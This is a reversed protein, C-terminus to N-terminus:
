IGLDDAWSTDHFGYVDGPVTSNGAAGYENLHSQRTPKPAFRMSNRMWNRWASKWCQFKTGKARHHDLFKDTEIALDTTIQNKIAWAFLADTIDFDDPARTPGKTRAIDKTVIDKMDIHRKHDGLEPRIGGKESVDAGSDPNIRGSDPFLEAGSDPKKRGLDPNIAGSDPASAEETAPAPNEPDDKKEGKKLSLDWEGLRTNVAYKKVNSEGERRIVKARVLGTILSPLHRRSIGTMEVLQELSIWDMAKNFGFTKRMVANVIKFERGSLDIRALANLLENAVRTYGNDLDAKIPSAEQPAGTSEPPAESSAQPARFPVVNGMENSQATM